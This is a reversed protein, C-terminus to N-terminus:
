ASTIYNPAQGDAKAPLVARAWQADALVAQWGSMALALLVCQHSPAHRM